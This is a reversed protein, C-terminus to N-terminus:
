LRWIQCIYELTWAFLLWNFIQSFISCPCICPSGLNKQTGGIIQPVSLAVFKLSSLYIWLMRGFLLGKFNQSFISRPRIWLSCWNKSYGRNDSSRTFSRIEFKTRVNKTDIPVFTWQLNRSFYGPTYHPSEFSKLAGMYQACRTTKKAIAWSDQKFQSTATSHPQKNNTTTHKPFHVMGQNHDPCQLM